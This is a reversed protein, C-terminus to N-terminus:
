ESKEADDSTEEDKKEADDDSSEEAAKAEQSALTAGLGALQAALSGEEPESDEVRQSSSAQSSSSAAAGGEDGGAGEGYHAQVLTLGVKREEPEIKIIRVEVKQGVKVVDEPNDVKHDALESIHLLGELGEELSVFVGFNTLKTVTGTVTDGIHFRSPIDHSWPDESLQKLGLAIRKKEQDVSLVVCKVEEGKKVVESPHTVKKTWSMDSIHLLGDIGQQLEIFAGYNTLNRVRGSIITGPPYNSEVLEWPNVETQKMGLSIEQKEKNVDLVVVEVHDGINVVERPDNVRRTWSMESIHVLGEVGDELKVFAGYSMINVVEGVIKASVPFKQDIEAWPDPTLQKLGLAVRERETDVKLVKVAIEQDIKVMETPHNIRGWTMDTIHLLGDLGGLDVFAGFDAINKVIGKRTQGEEIDALLATKDKERQEEILRRRSVVINMREEDIKIIRATIEKGIWDGVDETRRINVQSAPLFANVGIDVLLGGKIKRTCLGTVTDGESYTEIIKEWSRIRDAKRKSVVVMGEGDDLAELLVEVEVGPEVEEPNEFETVHILGESKYGVDIFVTDGSLRVVKGSVIQNAKIDGVADALLADLSSVDQLMAELEQEVQDEALAFEKVLQKGYAMYSRRGPVPVTPARASMPDPSTRRAGVRRSGIGGSIPAVLSATAQCPALTLLALRPFIGPIKALIRAVRGFRAEGFADSARARSRNPLGGRARARALGRRVIRTHLRM